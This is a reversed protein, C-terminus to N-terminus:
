LLIIRKQMIETLQAKLLRANIPKPMYGDFGSEMVRQEDSAYAFATIAIIPVKASYKRIEKTAEYGDMVPMNIDMLIIQPNYQKFMEVAEQGDWAHILQYEGKLISAFLKYNSENDEAILITFKNKEISIPQIEEKKISEEVAIAAKYPLTFWFTSGKGEESDVGITGGMHEVLTQCISLGLGTGQEFSNLKVFRGFISKQKDKPIGCGTDSVYFYIEKGRLEYGFRIYGETTFKIANSILNILLQSLRNKETHIFCNKEALHCTLQVKESKIKLQLSSTLENLMKNLDINSYQFELTGAEIKSLDLIDSILQLLLTNNNEIISVYEQKEEEEDTSALIGSFGVIANLPTRIEHSMNALFASKLRNSEEARDRATTLEMEMKKRTTIVLSSGVLTLPKGNEDRTEVAAQAEVWEIRHINNQVNIVRYEERVKDSRGEILDDYAKEVRKRDEKFIKSFYQSDPVALQEGNVDKDNTSLEIPRNIDCLITKSRLDWKWPVINAVDLAMALKNNTASLKQQAKHLETSDLCFIDVINNHHTGKLVVDYFTDIQKFYYPFTIAKNEALSMKTFHLFEPMSEPFIESAKKGVVDEKRFFSKEFHANVNRYVLEIPTGEENMILEEQMYLIPMNNILNKYSTMTDIEKQQIKKLKNLHSIRYQFFLALLIFCVITGLIFYGYQEWFTPPKNFFITGPPCLYPSMGKRLLVNYNITPAADSPEYFPIESAQKGNLISQITQIIKQSYVHQDYIYGGIIGGANDKITMMGLSFLPASTTSVLLHSNTVLSTNGAFTHKYFWSSFLIGTTKPDVTYLTDLLHNTQMKRPSIFQYNIDPHSKKLEQKIVMNYTQNNQREDGIFIFNKIDPTMRCILDINEKIYFNSHLFTLNYPQAMDAIPTRATLEVPKKQLYFEKPGIYDEEACLIIPINGWMKRFDDRLIMSSNGLLILMRPSHRKYKELVAQRFENLTSDTDMMLMNMHETYLALQPSNQAYETIASIMRFSWPAAETYSNIILLYNSSNVSDKQALIPSIYSFALLCFSLFLKIIYSNIIKTQFLTTM